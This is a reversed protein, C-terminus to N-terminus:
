PHKSFTEMRWLCMASCADISGKVRAQLRKWERRPGRGANGAHLTVVRDQWTRRLKGSTEVSQVHRVWDAVHHKIGIWLCLYTYPVRGPDSTWTMTQSRAAAFCPACAPAGAWTQFLSGGM